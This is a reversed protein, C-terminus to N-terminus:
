RETVARFEDSHTQLWSTQERQWAASARAYAAVAPDNSRTRTVAGALNEAQRAIVSDVLGHASPLGYADAMLRLRRAQEAILPGNDASITWLWGAYAVDRIRTGPAAHDFDILAVPLGDRFVYNCPSPDNHCVVECGEALPSGATADHFGRLLQAAATLSEDAFQDLNPPVWGPLFSLIERDQDDIGLLRPAATFGVVELHEFLRHAFGSHPGIPRRVTEAVRVVGATLRGGTLPVEPAM